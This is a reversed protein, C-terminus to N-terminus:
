RSAPTSRGILWLGIVPGPLLLWGLWPGLRPWLPMLALLSLVSIGFGIANQLTLGTGLRSPPCARASLASFHPSDIVALASWLGLFAVQWAPPLGALWPYLLACLASGALGLAAVRRSGHRQSLWGGLWCAPGGIAILAFSGLALTVADIGPVARALLFGVQVAGTLWGLDAPLLTWTVQLSEIVANPTFWLATGFLEAIAIVVIPM